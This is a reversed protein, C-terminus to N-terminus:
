WPVTVTSPIEDVVSDSSAFIDASTMSTGISSSSYAPTQGRSRGGCNLSVSVSRSVVAEVLVTEGRRGLVPGVAPVWQTITQPNRVSTVVCTSMPGTGIRDINVTYGESQLDEITQQASKAPAALGAPAGLAGWTAIAVAALPIATRM